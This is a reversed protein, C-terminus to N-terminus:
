LALAQTGHELALWAHQVFDIRTIPSHMHESIAGIAEPVCGVCNDETWQQRLLFSLIDRLVAREETMTEGRAVGVAIAAALAEGLGAAGTNHPPVVNGFGMGGVFAPDVGSDGDLVFRSRFAVYDLCFREYAEVRELTLAARAALCHWNEEVFFFQRLAEPWHDKGIYRMAALRAARVREVDLALTELSEQGLRELLTLALVSQGPAYLPEHGPRARGQDLDYRPHFGGDARQASLVLESLRAILPDFRTGVRDRCTLFAVLALASSQLQVSRRDRQELGSVVKAEDTREYRALLGLGKEVATNVDVDLRPTLECLAMLTGSQRPLNFSKVSAEASFPHLTYRFKGDDSQAELIHRRALEGARALADASTDVHTRRLRSLAHVGRENLVWSETTLRLPSEAEPREGIAKELRASWTDLEVGFRLDPLFALPRHELFGNRVLLQWPLACRSDLCIGDLGPRLAFTRTWTPVPALRATATVRDLLANGRAARRALERAVEALAAEDSADQICSLRYGSGDKAPYAVFWTAAARAPSEPCAALSVRPLRRWELESHSGPVAGAQPLERAVDILAQPNPLGFSEHGVREARPSVYAVPSAVALLLVGLGAGFWPLKRLRPAHERTRVLAWCATPVTILVFLGWIAVMAAFLGEGLDGYLGALYAGGVFVQWTVYGLALLAPLASVKWLAEGVGRARFFLLGVVAAAHGAAALVALLSFVTWDSWPLVWASWAFLAAQLASLGIVCSREARTLPAPAGPM